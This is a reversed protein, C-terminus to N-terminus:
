EPDDCSADHAISAGNDANDAGTLISLDDIDIRPNEGLTGGAGKRREIDFEPM